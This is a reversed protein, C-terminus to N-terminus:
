GSLVANSQVATEESATQTQESVTEAATDAKQTCGGLMALLLALAILISLIKKM